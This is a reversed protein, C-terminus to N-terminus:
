FRSKVGAYFARGRIDYISSGAGLGTLGLPPYTDFVNDVGAYLQLDMGLDQTKYQVRFDHYTIAPYRRVDAFDANNPPCSTASCAGPLTQFDEYLNVYMPGIFSLRYGFTLPGASVDLDWRFEDEPDGLESLIRDEFKPLTPNNFNSIMFNHTYILQTSLGWDDGLDARYSVQTDIGRRIRKAFNVGAQILSNGLIQGTQEGLPGPTPGLYRTFLGCFQNALSPQDYCLNAINQASLSVIVDAV